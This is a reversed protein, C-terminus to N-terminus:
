DQCTTYGGNGRQIANIARVWDIVFITRDSGGVQVLPAPRDAKYGTPVYLLGDREADLGLPQLGIPAAAVVPAAPRALLRGQADAQRGRKKLRDRTM